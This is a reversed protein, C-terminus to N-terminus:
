GGLQNVIEILPWLTAGAILVVPAALVLPGVIRVCYQAIVHWRALASQRAMLAAEFGALGHRGWGAHRILADVDGQFAAAQLHEFQRPTCLSQIREAIQVLPVGESLGERIVWGRQDHRNLRGWYGMRYCLLCAYMGAAVVLMWVKVLVRFLRLDVWGMHLNLEGFIMEFRPLVTETYFWLAIFTLPMLAMYFFIPRLMDDFGILPKGPGTLLWRAHSSSLEFQEGKSEMLKKVGDPLDGPADADQRLLHRLHRRKLIPMDFIIGTLARKLDAHRLIAHAITARLASIGTTVGATERFLSVLVGLGCCLVLAAGFIGGCIALSVFYIDM